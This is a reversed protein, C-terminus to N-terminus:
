GVVVVGCGCTDVVDDDNDDEDYYDDGNDDGDGDDEDDDNDDTDDSDDDDGDDYCKPALGQGCDLEHRRSTVSAVQKRLPSRDLRTPYLDVSRQSAAYM